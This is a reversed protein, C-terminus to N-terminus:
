WPLTTGDWQLFKGSDELTLGEMVKLMGSISQSPTIHANPGGMDTQVYGPHIPIVTFGEMNLAAKSVRYSIINPWPLPVTNSGLVSTINIITRTQKKRLQSIFNQTVLAPGVVNTRFTSELNEASVEVDSRDNLIIGANNILVDIGAPFEKEIAAAAAKITDAHDSDMEFIKVRDGAGAAAAEIAAVSKSKNRVTAIVTADDYKTLIQRVFELGLGRGAGTIVYVKGSM